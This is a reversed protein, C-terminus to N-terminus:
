ARSRVARQVDAFDGLSLHRAVIIRSSAIERDEHALEDEHEQADGHVDRAFPVVLIDNEFALIHRIFHHFNFGLGTFGVFFSGDRPAHGM